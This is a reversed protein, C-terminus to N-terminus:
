DILGLQKLRLEDIDNNDINGIAGKIEGRLFASLDPHSNLYSPVSNKVYGFNAQHFGFGKFSRIFGPIEHVNEPTITMRGCLITNSGKRDIMERLRKINLIVRDFDSGMNVREHVPKSAGNLSISVVNANDALREAMREGILLGNTLITYKKGADELYKMYDLCSKLLLHEGGQLVIEQIGEIDISSQVTESELEFPNAAHRIPHMCMICRINCAEGFSIHLKKYSNPKVILDERNGGSIVEKNLLNCREYCPLNGELSAKRLAILRDSNIIENMRATHLNGLKEPGMHCCSYADGTRTIYLSDWLYPCYSYKGMITM